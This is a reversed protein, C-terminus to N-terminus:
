KRPKLQDLPGNLEELGEMVFRGDEIVTVRKGDAGVASIRELERYPITIDTHVGFYAKSVDEKRLISVENDRAIMEKGDPNYMPSDESWSYCTDGVAFHPGMKEVILIPLRDLIGYEEAMAYATTNTGIAFEGLPLSEHNNMIGQIVLKRGEEKAEARQPPSCSDSLKETFNDCGCSIVRGDKFEMTLNKYQIEGVYVSEVNLIGETGGLVPSTFVEGLPINVDAVCNEFKTQKSPDSLKALNVRMKTRNPYKGIIEVYQAQDLVDIIKQQMRQYLNYDLTNIEITRAFIEQFDAGIAPAPFAIITFSTEDGPIYSNVIEMSKNRYELYLKKQKETFAWAEKKNEPEFGAEGFVEIVAPGAYQAAEKKFTEYATKLVSLKRDRFAKDLFLASDYRHDYDYQKNPSSSCFGATGTPNRNVSDVATRPIMVSLGAAEFNKVAQRVMREMGLPYRIVVTKKKSLDRGMVQFGRIYGDTYTHAMSIITEEPLGALFRAMEIEGGSVYEGFRYLYSPESLDSDMIIRKAFDLSPDLMERIRGTLTVDCYDSVCWYLVDRVQGPSPIGEEFLNYIEILAENYMVMELLRGEFSYVIDGRIEGYLFCLLRGMEEGFEKAAYAPNGYSTGYNEPLIDEYLKRNQAAAEKAINQLDGPKKQSTEAKEDAFLSQGKAPLTQGEESVPRGEVSSIKGEEGLPRGQRAFTQEMVTGCLAIFEATTKFYNRFPEEVTDERCIGGIREMSLSYRERIMTDDM